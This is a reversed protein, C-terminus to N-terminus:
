NTVYVFDKGRYLGVLLAGFHGRSGQPETYGGIVFEQRKQCKLKVWDGSRRPAYTSQIRKAMIGELHHESAAEYFAEGQELVHDSYRAAGLPPVVEFLLEKRQILPLRRLDHDMLALADFFIANVPVNRVAAEIERPKKLLMRKQLRQFSPQGSENPAVIEGDLVFRPVALSRVAQVLDPYRPSINEGSRGYLEVKDGDREALVRVGDYKIEYLWDKGSFPKEGLTALMFPVTHAAVKGKPAKLQALRESLRELKGPLDKM